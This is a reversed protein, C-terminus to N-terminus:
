MKEFHWIFMFFKNSKKIQKPFDLEPWISGPIFCVAGGRADGYELAEDFWLVLLLM